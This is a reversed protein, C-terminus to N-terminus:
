VIASGDDFLTLEHPPASLRVVYDNVRVAGFPRLREAMAKLNPKRGMARVRVADACLVTVVKGTEDFVRRVNAAVRAEPLEFVDFEVKQGEGLTKSCGDAEITSFHVFVDEGEDDPAIQGFGRGEDFWRIIGTAM